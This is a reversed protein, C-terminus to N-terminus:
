IFDERHLVMIDANEYNGTAAMKTLTKAARKEANKIGEKGIAISDRIPNSSKTGL